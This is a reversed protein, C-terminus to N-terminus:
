KAGRIRGDKDSVTEWLVNGHEDRRIFRRANGCDEDGPTVPEHDFMLFEPAFRCPVKRLRNLFKSILVVNTLDYIRTKDKSRLITHDVEGLKHIDATGSRVLPVGTARCVSRDRKWCAPRTIDEAKVKSKRKEDREIVAPKGKPPACRGRKSLDVVDSQTSWFGM